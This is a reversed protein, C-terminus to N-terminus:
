FLIEAEWTSLGLAELLEISLSPSEQESLLLTTGNLFSQVFPETETSTM